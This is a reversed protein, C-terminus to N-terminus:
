YHQTIKGLISGGNIFNFKWILGLTRNCSGHNKLHDLSVDSPSESYKLSGTVSSGM